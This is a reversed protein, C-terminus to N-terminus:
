ILCDYIEKMTCTSGNSLKVEVTYNIEEVCHNAIQKTYSPSSNIKTNLISVLDGYASMLDNIWELSTGYFTYEGLVDGVSDILDVTDIGAYILVATKVLNEVTEYLIAAKVKNGIPVNKTAFMFVIEAALFGLEIALQKWQQRTIYDHIQHMGFLTESESIVEYIDSTDTAEVWEQENKRRFYIPDRNFLIKFIEDKYDVRDKLSYKHIAEAYTEVYRAVGYPDIAFLLKLEDPSYTRYEHVIPKTISDVYLNFNAREISKITQNDLNFVMDKNICQWRKGSEFVVEPFGDVKKITVNGIIVHVKCTATYGGDESTATIVTTGASLAKISGDFCVSAVNPNNSAFNVTKNTANSPFVEVCLDDNYDGVKLTMKSHTLQINSVHIADNVTVECYSKINPNEDSYVTVLATGKKLGRIYGTESEVYLVDPKSSQYWVCKNSATYPRVSGYVTDGQYVRITKQYKDLVISQVSSM